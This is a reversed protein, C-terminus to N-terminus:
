SGFMRTSPTILKCVHMLRRPFTNSLRLTYDTCPVTGAHGLSPELFSIQRSKPKPPQICYGWVGCIRPLASIHGRTGSLLDRATPTHPQPIHSIVSQRNDRCKCISHKQFWSYQRWDVLHGQVAWGLGFAARTNSGASLIRRKEVKRGSYYTWPTPM